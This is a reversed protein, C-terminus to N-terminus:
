VVTKEGPMIIDLDSLPSPPRSSFEGSIVLLSLAYCLCVAIAGTEDRVVMNVWGRAAGQSKSKGFTVSFNVVRGVFSM